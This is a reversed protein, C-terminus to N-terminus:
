RQARAALAFQMFYSELKPDDAASTMAAVFQERSRLIEGTRPSQQSAWVYATADLLDLGRYFAAQARDTDGRQRAALARGVEAGANGMQEFITLQAWKKRDIQYSDM